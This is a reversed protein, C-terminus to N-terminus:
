KEPIEYICRSYTDVKYIDFDKREKEELKDFNPEFVCCIERWAALKLGKDKYIDLTKDWLVARQEVLPILVEPTINNAM